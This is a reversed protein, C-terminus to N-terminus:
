PCFLVCQRTADSPRYKRTIDARPTHTASISRVKLMYFTRWVVKLSSDGSIKPYLQRAQRPCWDVIDEAPGPQVKAMSHHDCWRKIYEQIDGLILDKFMYLPISRPDVGPLDKKYYDRVNLVWSNLHNVQLEKSHLYALAGGSM